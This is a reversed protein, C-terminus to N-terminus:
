KGLKKSVFDEISPKFGRKTPFVVPVDYYGKCYEANNEFKCGNEQIRDRVGSLRWMDREKDFDRYGPM